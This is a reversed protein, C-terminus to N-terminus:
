KMKSNRSGQKSVWKCFSGIKEDNKLLPISYLEEALTKNSHFRHIANHCLRCVAITTLLDEKSHSARKLLYTHTEKPYVHHRTLKCHTWPRLCLVCSDNNEHDEEEGDDKAFREQYVDILFANHSYVEKEDGDSDRLESSLFTDNLQSLIEEPINETIFNLFIVQSGIQGEEEALDITDEVLAVCVEFDM